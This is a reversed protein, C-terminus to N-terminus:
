VTVEPLEFWENERGLRLKEESPREIQCLEVICTCTLLLYAVEKRLSKRTAILASSLSVTVSLTMLVCTM